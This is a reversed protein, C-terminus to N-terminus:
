NTEDNDNLREPQGYSAFKKVVRDMEADDLCQVGGLSRAHVYQAALAEVEQALDFAEEVTVGTAILGHHAMLCAKYGSLTTVVNQALEETGFTAYPACPICKGGAVAVMYHFAPIAQVTCAIATAFTSHCHVVAGIEAFAAYLAGHFHWESSPALPGATESGDLTMVTLDAPRLRNYVAGTPTIIMRDRGGTGSSLRASVNGSTGVSLGTENLGCAASIVAERLSLETKM